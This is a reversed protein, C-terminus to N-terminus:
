RGLAKRISDATWTAAPGIRSAIAPAGLCLAVLAYAWNVTAGSTAYSKVYGFTVLFPIVVQHWLLVFLQSYLVVAWARQMLPSQAATTMFSAYTKTISEYLATESQILAALVAEQLKEALQEKSIKANFYDHFISELPGALVGSLLKAVTAWM